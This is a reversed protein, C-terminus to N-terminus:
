VENGQRRIFRALALRLNEDLEVACRARRDLLVCVTHVRAAQISGEAFILQTMAVSTRGLKRVWTAVTVEGPYNLEVLYDIKLSALVFFQETEVYPPAVECLLGIRGNQSISACFDNNVHGNQDTDSFRIIERTWFVGQDSRLADLNPKSM